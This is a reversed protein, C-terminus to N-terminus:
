AGAAYDAGTIVAVAGPRQVQWNTFVESRLATLNNQWLSVLVSEASEDEPNDVMHLAAQDAVQLEIGDDAVVIGTPDVLAVQGVAAARSTLVPIGLISGGRPGVDPFAFATGSRRKALHTATTPHMVFYAASFDGGFAAIAAEIDAAPDATATVTFAGNTISAPRVGAEGANTADIFAEDWVEAVARVLDDQLTAEAIKGGSKLAESTVVIIAAVKAHDLTTGEVVPRSIPKPKAEGVWYGTAGTTIGVVRRDFPIRRLGAMRGYISREKVLSIFESAAANDGLDGSMVPAIAARTITEAQHSGWRETAAEMLHQRETIGTSRLIMGRVFSRGRPTLDISM